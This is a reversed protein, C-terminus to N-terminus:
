GPIPQFMYGIVENGGEEWLKGIFVEMEMGVKFDTGGTGKLPSFIRVGEPLDVFGLACPPAFHSSPMHAITYSYLVGKRSM